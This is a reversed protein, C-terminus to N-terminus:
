KESILGKVSKVFFDSGDSDIEVYGGNLLARVKKYDGYDLKILLSKIIAGHSVILVKKGPNAIAVDRIFQILRTSTEEDSEIGDSKYAFREEKELNEWAKAWQKFEERTAGELHGFSREKLLKNTEVTLKHEAALIEATRKARLLDSSFALDFKENKLEKSLKKIEKIGNQTLPSDGHGQVFGKVNWETEGHRVIFFKTLNTM